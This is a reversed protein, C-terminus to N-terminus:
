RVYMWSKWSDDSSATAGGASALRERLLRLDDHKNQQWSNSNFSLAERMYVLMAPANRGSLTVNMLGISLLVACIGLLKIAGAAEGYLLIGVATAFVTEASAVVPVKSTELGCSLGTMYAIYALATPIAGFAVLLLVLRVSLAQRVDTWPFSVAGMFMVGAVFAWFTVTLPDDDVSAMRSFIALLAGGLGAVVGTTVGYWSFSFTSLDGGTVTLVCGVVNVGVALLKQMRVEERYLIRGLVVAFIPSTYLLVSATSIGVSRMSEYYLFNSLALGVAGLLITPVIAKRSLRFGALTGTGTGAHGAASGRLGRGLLVPVLLLAGFLLRLAAMSQSLVGMASIAKVFIGISGWMCAAAFVMVYGNATKGKM